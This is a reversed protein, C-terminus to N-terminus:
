CAGEHAVRVGSRQAECENQYTSGDCGCVPVITGDCSSPPSVCGGPGDCTDGDCFIGHDAGGWWFGYWRGCDRDTVCALDTGEPPLACLAAETPSTCLGTLECCSDGANCQEDLGCVILPDEDVCTTSALDCHGHTCDGDTTCTRRSPNLASGCSVLGAVRVRAASAACVDYYTRGDCGCVGDGPEGGGSCGNRIPTCLGLGGCHSGLEHGSDFAECTQGAPCDSARACVDSASGAPPACTPDGPAVCRLDLLCCEEDMACETGGCVAPQPPAFADLGWADSGDFSYVAADSGGDGRDLVSSSGYCGSLALTALLFPRSLPTM